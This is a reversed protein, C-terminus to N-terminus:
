RPSPRTQRAFSERLASARPRIPQSQLAFQQKGPDSPRYTEQVRRSRTSGIWTSDERLNNGREGFALSGARRTNAAFRLLVKQLSGCGTAVLQNEIRAQLAADRIELHMVRTKRAM